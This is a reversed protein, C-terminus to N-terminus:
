GAWGEFSFVPAAAIGFVNLGQAVRSAGYM